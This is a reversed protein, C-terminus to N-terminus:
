QPMHVAHEAKFNTNTQTHVRLGNCTYGRQPCLSYCLAFSYVRRGLFGRMGFTRGSILVHETKCGLARHVAAHLVHETYETHTNGSHYLVHESSRSAAPELFLGLTVAVTDAGKTWGAGALDASLGAAFSVGRMPMCFSLTFVLTHAVIGPHPVIVATM